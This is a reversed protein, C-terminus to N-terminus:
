CRVRGSLVYARKAHASGNGRAKTSFREQAAEFLEDEVIALHTDEARLSGIRGAVNGGKSGVLQRVHDFLADRDM